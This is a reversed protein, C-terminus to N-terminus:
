DVIARAQLAVSPQLKESHDVIHRRGALFQVENGLIVRSVLM